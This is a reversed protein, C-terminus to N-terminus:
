LDQDLKDFLRKEAAIARNVKMIEAGNYSTGNLERKHTMCTKCLDYEGGTVQIFNAAIKGQGCLPVDKDSAIHSYKNANKSIIFKM